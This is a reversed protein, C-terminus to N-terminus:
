KFYSDLFSDYEEEDVFVDIMFLGKQQTKMVLCRYECGVRIRKDEKIKKTLNRKAVVDYERDSEIITLLSHMNESEESFVMDIILCETYYLGTSIMHIPTPELRHKRKLEAKNDWNSIQLNFTNQERISNDTKTCGQEIKNTEIKELKVGTKGNRTKSKEYFANERSKIDSLINENEILIVDGPLFDHMYAELVSCFSHVRINVFLYYRGVSINKLFDGHQGFLKVMVVMNNPFTGGLRQIKSNCTFDTVCISPVSDYDIRIVKGLLNFFSMDVLEEIKKMKQSCIQPFANTNKFLNSLYGYILNEVPKNEKKEIIREIVCPKMIVAIKENFGLKVNRALLINGRQFPDEGGNEETYKAFEEEKLFVKLEICGTQDRLDVSFLSDTGKTKILPKFGTCVAAIDCYADKKLDGIYKFPDKYFKTAEIKNSKPDCDPISAIIRDNQSFREKQEKKNEITLKLCNEEYKITISEDDISSIEGRIIM